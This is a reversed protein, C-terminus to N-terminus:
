SMTLAPKLPHCPSQKRYLCAVMHVTFAPSSCLNCSIYVFARLDQSVFLFCRRNTSSYLATLPCVEIWPVEDPDLTSGIDDVDSVVTSADDVNSVITNHEDGVALSAQPLESQEQM